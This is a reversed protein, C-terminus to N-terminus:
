KWPGKRLTLGSLEPHQRKINKAQRATILRAREPQNTLENTQLHLYRGDASQLSYKLSWASTVSADLSTETLGGLESM